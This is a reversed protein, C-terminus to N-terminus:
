QFSHHCGVGEDSVACGHIIKILEWVSADYICRLLISKRLGFQRCCCNKPALTFPSTKKLFKRSHPKRASYVCGLLFIGYNGCM